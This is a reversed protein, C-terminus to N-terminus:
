AKVTKDALVEIVKPATGGSYANSIKASWSCVLLSFKFMHVLHKM